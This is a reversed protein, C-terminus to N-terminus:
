CLRHRYLKRITKEKQLMGRHGRDDSLRTKRHGKPKGQCRHNEPSASRQIRENAMGGGAVDPRADITKIDNTKDTTMFQDAIARAGFFVPGLPKKAAPICLKLRRPSIDGLTDPFHFLSLKAKGIASKGFPRALHNMPRLSIAAAETVHKQIIRPM